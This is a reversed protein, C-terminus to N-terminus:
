ENPLQETHCESSDIQLEATGSRMRQVNARTHYHTKALLYTLPVDIEVAHKTTSVLFERTAQM